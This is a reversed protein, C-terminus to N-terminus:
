SSTECGTNTHQHISDNLRFLIGADKGQCSNVMCTVHPALVGAISKSVVATEEGNVFRAPSNKLVVMEKKLDLAYFRGHVRWTLFTHPLYVVYPWARFIFDETWM